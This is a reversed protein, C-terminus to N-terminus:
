LIWNLQCTEKTEKLRPCHRLRGKVKMIKVHKSVVLWNNQQINRFQTLRLGRIIPSLDRMKPLLLVSPHEHQQESCGAQHYVAKRAM